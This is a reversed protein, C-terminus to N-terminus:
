LGGGFQHACPNTHYSHELMTAIARILSKAYETM